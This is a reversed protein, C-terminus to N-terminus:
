VTGRRSPRIAPKSSLCVRAYHGKRCIVEAAPCRDGPHGCYKCADSHKRQGSVNGSYNSPKQKRFPTRQSITDVIKTSKSTSDNSLEKMHLEVQEAQRALNIALEETLKDVDM